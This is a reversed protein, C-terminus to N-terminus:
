FGDRRGIGKWTGRQQYGDSKLNWASAYPHYDRLERAVSAAAQQKKAWQYAQEYQGFDGPGWTPTGPDHM